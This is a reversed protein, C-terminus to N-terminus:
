GNGPPNRCLSFNVLPPDLSGYDLFKRSENGRLCKCLDQQIDDILHSTTSSITFLHGTQVRDSFLNQVARDCKSAYAKLTGGKSPHDNPGTPKLGISGFAYANVGRCEPWNGGSPPRRASAIFQAAAGGLSHGVLTPRRSQTPLSFNSGDRSEAANAQACMAYVTFKATPFVCDEGVFNSLIQRMRWLDTGPLPIIRGDFGFIPAWAASANGSPKGAVNMQIVDHILGEDPELQYFRMEVALDLEFGFRRVEQRCGVYITNFKDEDSSSKVFARQNVDNHLENLFDNSTASVSSPILAPTSVLITTGDSCDTPERNGFWGERDSPREVIQSLIFLERLEPLMGAHSCSQSLASPSVLCLLTVAVVGLPIRVQAVGRCHEVESGTSSMHDTKMNLSGNLVGNRMM